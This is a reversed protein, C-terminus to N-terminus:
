AKARKPKAQIDKAPEDELMAEVVGELLGQGDAEETERRESKAGYIRTKLERVQLRLLDNEAKLEDIHKEQTQELATM